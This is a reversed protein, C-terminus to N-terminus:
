LVYLVLSLNFLDEIYGQHCEGEFWVHLFHKCDLAGWGTGALLLDIWYLCGYDINILFSLHQPIHSLLIGM